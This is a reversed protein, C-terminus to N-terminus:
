SYTKNALSLLEPIIREVALPKKIRYMMWLDVSFVAVFLMLFVQTIPFLFELGFGLFFLIILGAMVGFFRQSLYLSKM